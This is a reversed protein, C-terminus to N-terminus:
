SFFQRINAVVTKKADKKTIAADQRMQMGIVCFHVSM